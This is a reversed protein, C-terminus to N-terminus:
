IISNSLIEKVLKGRKGGQWGFVLSNVIKSDFNLKNLLKFLHAGIVAENAVEKDSSILEEPKVKISSHLIEELLIGFAVDKEIDTGMVLTDDLSEASEGFFPMLYVTFIQSDLGSEKEIYAGIDTRNKHWMENLHKIEEAIKENNFEGTFDISDLEKQLEPSISSGFLVGKKVIKFDSYDAYKGFDPKKDIKIYTILTNRLWM